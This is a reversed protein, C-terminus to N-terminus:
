IAQQQARYEEFPIPLLDQLNNEIFTVGIETLEGIKTFPGWEAFKIFQRNVFHSERWEFAFEENQNVHAIDLPVNDPYMDQTTTTLMIGIFDEGENFDTWVAIFHFGRLRDRFRARIIDGRCHDMM